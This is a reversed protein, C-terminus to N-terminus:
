DNKAKKRFWQIFLISTCINVMYKIAGSWNLYSAGFERRNMEVQIEKVTYGQRILYALTDPEPGYNIEAAFKEILEADFMRMGSTPDKIKKGTVLQILLSIVSNGLERLKKKKKVSVYRSGIVIDASEETMARLMEGIYAPNHQGDGDFQIACDYGYRYAYKMGTRFGCDLGMNMPLNICNYNKSECIERTKDKSGDNVILYDYEPYDKILGDVVREISGAENYAPIIVLVKM